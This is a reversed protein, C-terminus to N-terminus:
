SVTESVTVSNRPPIHRSLIAIHVTGFKTGIRSFTERPNFSYIALVVKDKEEIRRIFNRREIISHLNNFNEGLQSDFDVRKVDPLVFFYPVVNPIIVIMPINKLKM